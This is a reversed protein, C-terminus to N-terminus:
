AGVEPITISIKANRAAALVMNVEADTMGEVDLGDAVARIRDVAPHDLLLEEVAERAVWELERKRTQWKVREMRRRASQPDPDSQRM